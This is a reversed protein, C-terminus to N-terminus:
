ESHRRIVVAVEECVEVLLEVFVSLQVNHGSVVREVARVGLHERGELAEVRNGAQKGSSVVVQEAVEAAEDLSVEVVNLHDALAGEEEYVNEFVQVM